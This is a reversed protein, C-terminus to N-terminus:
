AYLAGKVREEVLTLGCIYTIIGSWVLPEARRPNVREASLRMEVRKAELAEDCEAYM